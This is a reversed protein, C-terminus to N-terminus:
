GHHENLIALIAAAENAAQIYGELAQKANQQAAKLDRPPFWGGLLEVPDKKLLLTEEDDELLDVEQVITWAEEFTSGGGDANNSSISKSMTTKPGKRQRLGTENTPDSATVASKSAALSGTVDKEKDGLVDQLIWKPASSAISSSSKHTGFNSTAASPAEGTGMANATAEEAREGEDVLDAEEGMNGCIATTDVLRYRCRLEERVLEATYSSDVKMMVGRVNRRSKTLQWWCSKLEANATETANSYAQLHKLAALRPYM